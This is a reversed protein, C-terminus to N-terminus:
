RLITLGTYALSAAQSVWVLTEYLVPLLEEHLEHNTVNLAALTKLSHSGTLFEAILVMLEMPLMTNGQAKDHDKM